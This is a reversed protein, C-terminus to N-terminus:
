LSEPDQTNQLQSEDRPWIWGSEPGLSELNIDAELDSSDTEERSAPISWDEGNVTAQPTRTHSPLDTESYNRKRSIINAQIRKLLM